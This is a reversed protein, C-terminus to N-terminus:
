LEPYRSVIKAIERADDTSIHAGIPLCVVEDAFKEAGQCHCGAYIESYCPQKYCPAPYIIDTAVGNDTMYRCFLDRSEVRLPYQHWVQYSEKFIEPKVVQPNDILNDYIAVLERRRESEKQLHPLKVLLMAAQLEDMRCNYGQHINHYRRDCGYNALARVTDALRRDNTTVMGADGLAGLNKTPYFSTGAADGLGGTYFTDNLGSEEARAGIAQANDEIIKLNHRNAVEKLEKDWCPTGYLHVPMVAVTRSTVAKEILSTDLNLTKPSMDVFVPTLGENSVALATAIYTNAAMIIEDGDHFVGMEKYARVILHLADLGNSVAVAYSTNCLMAIEKELRNVYEGNIYRGSAIVDCAAKKLEEEFPENVPKLDLFPYKIAM